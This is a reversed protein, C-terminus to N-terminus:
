VADEIAKLKAIKIAQRIAMRDIAYYTVGIIIIALLISGLGISSLFLPIALFGFECTCIVPLAPLGVNRKKVISFNLWIGALGGIMVFFGIPISYAITAAVPFMSGLLTDGGGLLNGKIIKKPDQKGELRDLVDKLNMDTFFLPPVTKAKLVRLVLNRMLKSRFVALIDYVCFGIFLLIVIELSTSAGIWAGVIASTYISFANLYKEWFLDYLLVILGCLLTFLTVFLLGTFGLYSLLPDTLMASALFIIVFGYYDTAVRIIGERHKRFIIVAIIASCGLIFIIYQVVTVGTAQSTFTSLAIGLFFSLFMTIWILNMLKDM